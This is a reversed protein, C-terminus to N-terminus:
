KMVLDDATWMKRDPGASHIEIETGSLQHFFYPTRWNDVLEGHDNVELGDEPRLFPTRGPNAGNLTRTIEQNTGVPNGGFRSSYNRFTARVNEMVTLPRLDPALEPGEPPVALSALAVPKPQAPAAETSRALENAETESEAMSDAEVSPQSTETASQPQPKRPTEEAAQQLAAVPKDPTILWVATAALLGLAFAALWKKM